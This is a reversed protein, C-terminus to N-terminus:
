RKYSLYHKQFRSDIHEIASLLAAGYEKRTCLPSITDRVLYRRWDDHLVRALGDGHFIELSNGERCLLLLLDTRSLSWFHFIDKAFEHEKQDPDLQPVTVARGHIGWKDSWSALLQNSLLRQREDTVSATDVLYSGRPTPVDWPSYVIESSYPRRFPRFKNFSCVPLALRLRAFRHM